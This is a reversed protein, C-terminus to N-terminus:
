NDRRVYLYCLSFVSFFVTCVTLFFDQRPQLSCALHEQTIINGGVCHVHKMELSEILVFITVSIASWPVQGDFKCAASLVNGKTPNLCKEALNCFVPGNWLLFLVELRVM